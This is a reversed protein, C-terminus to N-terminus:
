DNNKKGVPYFFQVTKKVRNTFFIALYMGPNFQTSYFSVVM